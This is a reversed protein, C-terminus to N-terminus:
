HDRLVLHYSVEIELKVHYSFSTSFGTRRTPGSADNYFNVGAGASKGFYTHAILHQTVPAEDIGAWQRRFSFTLPTYNKVGAVAPNIALDNFLYQSNLAVQQGKNSFFLFIALLSLFYKKM